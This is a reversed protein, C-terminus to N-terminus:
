TSSCQGFYINHSSFLDDVVEGFRVGTVVPKMIALWGYNKSCDAPCKDVRSIANTATFHPAVLGVLMIAVLSVPPVTLVTDISWLASALLALCLNDESCYREISKVTQGRHAM